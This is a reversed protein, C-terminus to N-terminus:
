DTNVKTPRPTPPKVLPVPKPHEPTKRKAIGKVTAGKKVVDAWSKIKPTAKKGHIARLVVAKTIAPPPTIAPTSMKMRKVNIQIPSSRKRKLNKGGRPTKTAVVVPKVVLQMEKLPTVSKKAKSRASAPSSIVPTKM